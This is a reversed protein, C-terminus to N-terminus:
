TLPPPYIEALHMQRGSRCAHVRRDLVSCCHSGQGWCDAVSPPLCGLRTGWTLPPPYIEAPHM